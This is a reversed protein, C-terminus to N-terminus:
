KKAIDDVINSFRLANDNDLWVDFIDRSQADLRELAKGLKDYQKQQALNNLYSMLKKYPWGVEVNM